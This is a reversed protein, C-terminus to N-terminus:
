LYLFNRIRQQTGEPLRRNFSLRFRQGDPHGIVVTGPPLHLTELFDKVENWPRGPIAGKLHIGKGTVRIRFVATSFFGIKYLFVLLAIALIILIIRGM